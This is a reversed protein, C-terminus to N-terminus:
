AIKEFFTSLFCPSSKSYIEIEEQVQDSLVNLLHLLRVSHLIYDTLDGIAELSMIKETLLCGQHLDGSLCGYRSKIAELDELIEIM